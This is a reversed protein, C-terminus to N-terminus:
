FAEYGLCGMFLIGTAGDLFVTRFDVGVMLAKRRIGDDGRGVLPYGGARLDIAPGSPNNFVGYGFGGGAFFRDSLTVEGMVTAIFTGTGGSIEAGAVSTGL